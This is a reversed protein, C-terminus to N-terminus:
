FSLRLNIGFRRTSPVNDFEFGQANGTGFTGTEPDFHTHKPVNPARYWLNRGTLSISIAGFPTKSLMSKPLSYSLSAERIRVVTADFVNWEDAANVGFTEGFYLDNKEVQITNPIEKGEGNLVPQQTNVDGIVGPIVWNMERNETDKTVGRGLESYITQSYIDGGQTWDVLVSLMVGKYSFSNTVGVKFDPNPNGVIAVNPSRILQGNSPDILLNGKSDRADVTGRMVGYDHGPRLVPTIGGAFLNRVVIEDVGPALKEVKNRNHTFNANIDWRFGNSMQVPTLGLMIEEGRNSLNGFNTLYQTFGSVAPLSQAAIGNTTLTSYYTFGLSIRGSYFQLDTGLEITRTFEPTLKPDAIVDNTGPIGGLTSGAVGKFPFQVSQSVFQPNINYTTSIDYPSADNGTRTWGARIKGMSMFSPDIHLADSFIFSASVNPYFFSRKSVPLTSSWDNRGAATLVLYDKYQLSVEGLLGILRRRSYGGGNNLVKTTNDIDVINFDIFETGVYAQDKSTRQNINNAVYAQITLDDTIKKNINLRLFHDLEMWSSYDDIVEGLGGV